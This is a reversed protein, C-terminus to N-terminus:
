IFYGLIENLSIKFYNKWLKIIVTNKQDLLNLLLYIHFRLIFYKHKYNKGDSSMQLFNVFYFSM